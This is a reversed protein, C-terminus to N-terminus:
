KHFAEGELSDVNKPLGYEHAIEPYHIGIHANPRMTDAIYQRARKATSDDRDDLAATQATEGQISAVSAARSGVSQSAYINLQNFMTRARRIIAGMNKRDVDSMKRGMLVSNSKAIAATTSVVVDVPSADPQNQQIQAVFRPMLHKEELWDRLLAPIIITWRGHDSMSYSGLHHTPSQLRPAGPPFPWGRLVSAYEVRATKTLIGDRLLFHMLNAIGKYESHAADPPRSLVLDLAPSIAQLAPHADNIGWQAGYQNQESKTKLQRDMMDHMQKTQLHYRGHAVTDTNLIASSADDGTMDPKAGAFCFRCFKHARPGKFGSNEAQQPMDGTYCITFACLRYKQGRIDVEIGEDLYRMTRLAKIVNSFDSGHPGLALPFINAERSRLDEPLAAPTVYFGMLSRYSNRYVGFGDIFSLLPVSLTPLADEQATDWHMEFLARDYQELELEARLAHTHCLPIVQNADVDFIRRAVLQQNETREATITATYYKPFAQPVKPGKFEGQRGGDEWRKRAEDHAAQARSRNKVFAAAPQPDDHIEGSVRDIFVDATGLVNGEPIYSVATILLIEEYDWAPLMDQLAFPMYPSDSYYAEQVQLVLENANDTCPSSRRDYGFGYVRGIHFDSSAEDLKQCGCKTDGCRYFIFDSPFIVGGLQGDGLQLHPYIGSSTRVSSAWAHSEFLETPLDVFLAPGIHMDERIDSSMIATFISTPDLFYLDSNRIEVEKAKGKGKRDRKETSTDTPLKEIKLPISAKRMDMLPLRTRIRSKITALQKPLERVDPHPKGDVDLLQLLERLAEWQPRSMGTLDAYLALGKEFKSMVLHRNQKHELLVSTDTPDTVDKPRVEVPIFPSSRVPSPTRVRPEDVDHMPEDDGGINDEFATSIPEEQDFAKEEYDTAANLDINDVLALVTRDDDTSNLAGYRYADLDVVGIM